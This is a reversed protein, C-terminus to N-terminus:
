IQPGEAFTVSQPGSERNASRIKKHNASKFNRCTRVQGVTVCVCHYNPNRVRIDLGGTPRWRRHPHAKKKPYLFLTLLSHAPTNVDRGSKIQQGIEAVRPLVEVLCQWFFVLLTFYKTTVKIKCHVYTSFWRYSLVIIVIYFITSHLLLYKSSHSRQVQLTHSVYLSQPLHFSSAPSLM